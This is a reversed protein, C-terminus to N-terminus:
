TCGFYGLRCFHSTHFIWHFSAKNPFFFFATIETQWTNKYACFAGSWTVACCSTPTVMQACLKTTLHLHSHRCSGDWIIGLQKGDRQWHNQACSRLVQDHLSPVESTIPITLKQMRFPDRLVLFVSHLFFASDRWQCHNSAQYSRHRSYAGAVQRNSTSCALSMSGSIRDLICANPARSCSMKIFAIIQIFTVETYCPNVPIQISKSPKYKQVPILKDTFM